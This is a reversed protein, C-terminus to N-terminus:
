RVDTIGIDTWKFEQEQISEVATVDTENVNDLEEEPVSVHGLMDWYAVVRSSQYPERM